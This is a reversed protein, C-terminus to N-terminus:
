ASSADQGKASKNDRSSTWHYIGGPRAPGVVVLHERIRQRCIRKDDGREAIGRIQPGDHMVRRFIKVDLIRHAERQWQRETKRDRLRRPRNDHDLAVSRYEHM